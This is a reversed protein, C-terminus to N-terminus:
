KKHTFMRIAWTQSYESAINDDGQRYKLQSDSKERHLKTKEQHQYKKRRKVWPECESQQKCIVDQYGRGSDESPTM